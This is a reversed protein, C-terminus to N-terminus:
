GNVILDMPIDHEGAPVEDLLQFPFCVGVKFARPLKALLRDYYGKGRGLRHGQHDFAMGPVIAIDISALDTFEEGGPEMIGYAGRRLPTNPALRHITLQTPGAVRPLLVIPASLPAIDVEDPLASYLLATRATQWGPLREVSRVIAASWAALEDPTCAAKRLRMEHRIAAKDTM